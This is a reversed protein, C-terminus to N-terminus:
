RQWVEEFVVLSLPPLAFRFHTPAGSENKVIYAWKNTFQGTGGYKAEDSNFIQNVGQIWGLDPDDHLSPLPFDYQKHGIPSFNFFLALRGGGFDLRHFGVVRNRAHDSIPKYGWDAHKWFAPKSCYLRNLDGVYQMLNHHQGSGLLHWEVAGEHAHLRGNWSWIQGLEDGMHIMHGAGPSLLNLAHFLRMDAFRRWPDDTPVSSHLTCHHHWSGSAADDHSHAILWREHKGAEHFNAMLKGHHHEDYYREEFPTKMYKRTRWQMHVGVKVDFGLGGEWVPRTVDPFGDTEEAIMLVGPYQEHVVRNLEKLFDVAPWKVDGHRKVMPGVADIRMGDIHMREFWYLASALLLRRTEEKGFDFYTTEWPSYEAAFLNTGDYYHLSQSVDGAHEHKYHAPIWDLIVGISHQHCQDVLYKFDEENGSMRRNAAFFHDPQYGWSWDNKNDLVGYLEVHTFCLTKQHKVIEDALERFSLTRGDYKKWCEVNLEYISLPRRIPNNVCRNKMWQADNWAYAHSKPVVSEAVGSTEIIALAFPDTRSNWHGHSNCVSFRYTRGPHAHETFVEWLGFDGRRMPIVHEERGYATLLLYMDCANPAYVQFYTGHGNPHAGRWQYLHREDRAIEEASSSRGFAWDRVPKMGCDTATVRIMPPSAYWYDKNFHM